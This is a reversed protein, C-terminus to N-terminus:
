VLELLLSAIAIRDRCDAELQPHLSGLALLKLAAAKDEAASELAIEAGVLDLHRAYWSVMKSGNHQEGVVKLAEVMKDYM